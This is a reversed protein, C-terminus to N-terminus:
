GGDPPVTTHRGTTTSGRRRPATRATCLRPRPSMWGLAPNREFFGVPEGLGNLVAPNVIKWYRARLADTLQQAEAETRLLTSREYFANGLPNKPGMPEAETHVEYISNQLGDVMMDLRVNFFHQHNPAYVGPAVLTGYRRTEGPPLAGTNLIGTM